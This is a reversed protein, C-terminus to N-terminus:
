SPGRAVRAALGLGGGGVEFSHSRRGREHRREHRKM